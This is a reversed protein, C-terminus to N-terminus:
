EDLSVLRHRAAYHSLEARSQVQTKRFINHLHHAVTHTSIALEGAIQKNALGVAAMVEAMKLAMLVRHADEPGHSVHIFVGDRPGHELATEELNKAKTKLTCGPYYSIKM